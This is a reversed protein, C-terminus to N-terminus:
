SRGALRDVELQLAALCAETRELRRCVSEFLELHTELADTAATQYAIIQPTYWFLSQRVLRVLWM